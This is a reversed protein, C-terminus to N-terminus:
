LGLMQPPKVGVKSLAEPMVGGVSNYVAYKRNTPDVGVQLIIVVKRTYFIYIRCKDITIWIKVSDEHNM